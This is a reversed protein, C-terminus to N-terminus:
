ASYWGSSKMDIFHEKIIIIFDDLSVGQTWQPNDLKSKTLQVSSALSIMNTDKILLVPLFDPGMSSNESGKCTTPIKPASPKESIIEISSAELDVGTPFGM